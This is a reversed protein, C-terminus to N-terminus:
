IVNDNSLNSTLESIRKTVNVNESLNNAIAFQQVEKPDSFNELMQLKRVNSMHVAVLM